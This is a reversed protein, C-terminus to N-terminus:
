RAGGELESASLQSYAIERYTACDALLEEHTGKGVVRGEDLVVIQEAHLITAIRQAVIIVTADAVQAHLAQRLKMDTKYDLASFSDDFLLIRPSKALARAISLRQKQGGSVNTGGQSIHEAFKEPESEVFDRAQAIDVARNVADDDIADGGFKLNSEITGSFLVGKQPVYGLLEHLDSQRVRRVDAGDITVAGACVDYFRPILNLLTSKGSGTSGIIATTKGPEATFDIDHLMDEEAEDYRFSVHEFRVTGAQPGLDREIAALDIPDTPDVISSKTAIVEDIRESAVGARPLMISIISLMLFSMIIMMAYTIFAIMDGVQMAGIDIQQAATWVILVSVGNMVLMMGPMMFTMVRNTFLQTKMLDFSAARFRAQEFSERGFARVVMIGTLIERSVLNLKDILKQMIKFKPLAIGFLVAIMGLMLVVALAIIWSMSVNTTSVMIIGGIGLVPAYLIMRLLMVLVMQVQQIDNTSRTILSATSFRNLEAHSFGMVSSFVRERLDRAIQAATRSAILGVLVSAVVMGLTLLLMQLGATILYSMQLDDLSVGLATYEQGAFDIAKQKVIMDGMSGLSDVLQTKMQEIQSQSIYGTSIMQALASLDYQDSERAYSVITMPLSEISDLTSRISRGQDNLYYNGDESLDYSTTFTELQDPDVFLALQDHTATSMEVLSPQEIGKQQIGVDVINSTYNPLSLDCFAQAILLLIILAVAGLHGKLYRFVRM